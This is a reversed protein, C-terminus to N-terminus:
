GEGRHRGQNEGLHGGQGCRGVSQQEKGEWDEVDEVSASQGGGGKSMPTFEQKNLQKQLEEIEALIKERERAEVAVDGKASIRENYAKQLKWIRRRIERGRETFQGVPYEEFCQPCNFWIYGKCERLEPAFV